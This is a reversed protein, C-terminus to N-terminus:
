LDPTGSEASLDGKTIAHLFPSVQWARTNDTAPLSTKRHFGKQFLLKGRLLPIATKISRRLVLNCGYEVDRVSQIFLLSTSLKM